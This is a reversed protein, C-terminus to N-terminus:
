LVHLDHRGAPCELVEQLWVQLGPARSQARSRGADRHETGEDICPACAQVALGDHTLHHTCPFGAWAQARPVIGTGDGGLGGRGERAPNQLAPVNSGDLTTVSTKM